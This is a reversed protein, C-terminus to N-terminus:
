GLRIFKTVYLFQGHSFTVSGECCQRIGYLVIYLVGEILTDVPDIEPSMHVPVRKEGPRRRKSRRSAPRM